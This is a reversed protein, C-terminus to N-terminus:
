GLAKTKNSRKQKYMDNSVEWIGCFGRVKKVGAGEMGGTEERGDGSGVSMSNNREEGRVRGDWFWVDEKPLTERADKGYPILTSKAKRSCM